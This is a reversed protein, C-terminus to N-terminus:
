GHIKAGEEAAVHVVQRCAKFPQIFHYLHSGISDAAELKSFDDPAVPYYQYVGGSNFEVELLQCFADYGIEKVNDSKVRHRVVHRVGVDLTVKMVPSKAM